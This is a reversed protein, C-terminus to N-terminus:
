ENQQFKNLLDSILLEYGVRDTFNPMTIEYCLIDIFILIFLRVLINLFVFGDTLVIGFEVAPDIIFFHYTFVFCVFFPEGRISWTSVPKGM